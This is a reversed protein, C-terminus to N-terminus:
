GVCDSNSIRQNLLMWFSEFGYRSTVHFTGIFDPFAAVLIKLIELTREENKLSPDCLRLMLFDVFRVVRLYTNFYCDSNLVTRMDSEDRTSLLLRFFKADGKLAVAVLVNQLQNSESTRSLHDFNFPFTMPNLHRLIQSATFYDGSSNTFILLCVIFFSFFFLLFFLNLFFSADRIGQLVAAVFLLKIPKVHRMESRCSLTKLFYPFYECFLSEKLGEQRKEIIRLAMKSIEVNEEASDLEQKLLDIESHQGIMSDSPCQQQQEFKQRLEEVKKEHAEVVSRKQVLMSTEVNERFQHYLYCVYLTKPTLPWCYISESSELDQQSVQWKKQKEDANIAAVLKAEANARLESYWGKLKEIEERLYDVVDVHQYVLAQELAASLNLLFKKSM